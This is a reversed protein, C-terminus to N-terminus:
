IAIEPAVDYVTGQWWKEGLIADTRIQLFFIGCYELRHLELRRLGLRPTM